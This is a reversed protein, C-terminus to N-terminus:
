DHALYVRKKGGQGLFRKVQYRGNAFSTPQAPVPPDSPTSAVPAADPTQRDLARDIAAIYALADVNADDFALVMQAQRRAGTWDGTSMAAEAQDLLRDIQRQVRESLM